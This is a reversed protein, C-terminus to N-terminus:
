LDDGDGGEIDLQVLHGCISFGAKQYARNSAPNQADTYLMPTKQLKFAVEALAAALAAGYGRGRLKPSTVVYSIRGYADGPLFSLNGIAAIEGVESRWCYLGRLSILRLALARIGAGSADKLRLEKQGACLLACIPALVGEEACILEGKVLAGAKAMGRYANVATKHAPLAHAAAEDAVKDALEPRATIAIKRGHYFHAYVARAQDLLTAEARQGDSWVWLEDGKRSLAAIIRGGGGSYLRSGPALAIYRMKNFLLADKQFPATDFISLDKTLAFM